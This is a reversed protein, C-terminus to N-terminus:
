PINEIGAAHEEGAESWDTDGGSKDGDPTVDGVGVDGQHENDQHHGRRGGTSPPRPGQRGHDRGHGEVEEMGPGIEGQLDRRGLVELRSRQQEHDPEGHPLHRDDGPLSPAVDGLAAEPDFGEIADGFLGSLVGIHLV